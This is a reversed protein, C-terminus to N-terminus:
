RVEQSNVKVNKVVFRDVIDKDFQGKKARINLDEFCFDSLRYQDSKKVNFFTTCDLDINRMTINNSYSIPIDKRDGLNYFQTWPAVYILELADGQVVVGGDLDAFVGKHAARPRHDRGFMNEDVIGELCFQLFCTM